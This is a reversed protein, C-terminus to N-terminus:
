GVKILQMMCEKIMQHNFTLIMIQLEDNTVNLQNNM